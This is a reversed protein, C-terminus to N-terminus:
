GELAIQRSDETLLIRGDETMLFNGEPPDPPDPDIIDGPSVPSRRSGGVSIQGFGTFLM